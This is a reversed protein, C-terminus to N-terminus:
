SKRVEDIETRSLITRGTKHNLIRATAACFEERRKQEAVFAEIEEPTALRHTRDVLCKGALEASAESVVGPRWEALFPADLSTIFASRQGSAMIEEGAARVQRWYQILDM